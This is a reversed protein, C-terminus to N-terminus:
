ATAQSRSAEQRGEASAGEAHPLTYDREPGSLYREAEALRSVYARHAMSRDLDTRPGATARLARGDLEALGLEGLVRLLRGCLAGSRPHAGEGRLMRELEAGQLAGAGAVARWVQTLPPRLDLQSRWHALAFEREPEGWALHVLGEGPITRLVDLGAPVPPPDIALLHGGYRTAPIASWGCVEAGGPGLGALLAELGARRRHVDAVVLLVPEGSTILDGAVGALGEGRRDRVARSQRTPGRRM